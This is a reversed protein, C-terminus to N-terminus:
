NSIIIGCWVSFQVPSLRPKDISSFSCSIRSSFFHPQFHLLSQFLLFTFVGHMYCPTNINM